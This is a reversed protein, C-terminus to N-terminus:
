APRENYCARSPILALLPLTAALGLIASVIGNPTGVADPVYRLVSTLSLLIAAKGARTRPALAALALLWLAYWPYPNPVLVWGALGLWVWGEPSRSRLLTVGSVALLTSATLAVAVAALPSLPAVIAQLSAQPEYHGHPVLQTAVGRLLPVSLLAAVFVGAIAGLRARRDRIGLAVAAALGPPKILVSLAVIAAGLWAWRNRVLVFGFLVIALAIADNHGETASWIAVPNLGIAAAARLRTSRDGEYACYALPVCALLALSAVARLAQLAALMGFPAFVRVVLEALAVFGPGYLCVPVATGWQLDAANVLADAHYATSPAYPSAGLRALEGYAAYAYVDSSFLVPACWGVALAVATAFTLRTPSLLNAHQLLRWYFFGLLTVAVFLVLLATAGAAGADTAVRLPATM